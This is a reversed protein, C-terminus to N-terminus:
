RRSRPSRSRSASCWARNTAAVTTRSKRPSRQDCRAKGSRASRPAAWLAQRAPRDLRGAPHHRSLRRLRLRLWRAQRRLGPRGLDPAKRRVACLGLYLHLVRLRVCLVSITPVGAAAAPFIRRLPGLFFAGSSARRSRRCRAPPARAAAARCDGSHQAGVAGASRLHSLPPRVAVPLGLHGPRASLRHWVRHRHCRLVQRPEGQQYRRFRLGAGAVPQGRHHRRHRAFYLGRGTHHRQRAGRLRDAHGGPEALAAAQARRSRCDPRASAGLGASM